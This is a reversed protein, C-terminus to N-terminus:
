KCYSTPTAGLRFSRSDWKARFGLLDWSPARFKRAAACGPHGSPRIPALDDNGPGLALTICFCYVKWNM